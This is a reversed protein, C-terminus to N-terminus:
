PPCGVQLPLGGEGPGAGPRSGIFLMHSNIKNDEGWYAM